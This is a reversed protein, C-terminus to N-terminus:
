KEDDDDYEVVGGEEDIAEGNRKGKVWDMTIGSGEEKKEGLRREEGRGM